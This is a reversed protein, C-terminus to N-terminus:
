NPVGGLSILLQVGEQNGSARMRELAPAVEAGREVLLAATERHSNYAAHFLPEGGALDAGRDCLAAVADTWGNRAPWHLAGAPLEMGNDFLLDWSARAALSLAPELDVVDVRYRRWSDDRRLDSDGHVRAPWLLAARERLSELAFFVDGVGWVFVRDDDGADRDNRLEGEGLEVPGAMRDRGTVIVYLASADHDPRFRELLAAFEPDGALPAFDPDERFEAPVVRRELALEAYRMCGARDGFRAYLCAMNYLATVAEPAAVRDAAAALDMAPMLQRDLEGVLEPDNGAIAVDVAASALHWRTAAAGGLTTVYPLLARVLRTADFVAGGTALELAARACARYFDDVLPPDAAFGMEILDGIKAVIPGIEGVSTLRKLDALGHDLRDSAVDYSAHFLYYRRDCNAVGVTIPSTPIRRRVGVENPGSDDGPELEDIPSSWVRDGGAEIWLVADPSAGDLTALRALEIGRGPAAVLERSVEGPELVFGSRRGELTSLRFGVAAAEPEFTMSAPNWRYLGRELDEVIAAMWSELDAALLAGAPDILRGAGDISYTVGAGSDVLPLWGPTAAEVLEELPAIDYGGVISAAGDHCRYLDVVPDPLAAGLADAAADLESATAAERVGDLLRPANGALWAEWRAWLKAISPM